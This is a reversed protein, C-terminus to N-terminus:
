SSPADCRNEQRDSYGGKAVDRVGIADGALQVAQEAIQLECAGFRDLFPAGDGDAYGGIACFQAFEVVQCLPQITKESGALTPTTSAPSVIRRTCAVKEPLSM